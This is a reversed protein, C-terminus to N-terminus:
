KAQALGAELAGAKYGTRDTRHLYAADYGREVLEEVKAKAIQQTEDTSDDLVQLELKDKPYELGAVSEILREAVYRENFMPRQVTVLPLEDFRSKPRLARKHHRWYLYVLHGRHFGYVALITLTALYVGLVLAEM